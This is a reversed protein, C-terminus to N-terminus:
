LQALKTAYVCKFVTLVMWLGMTWQAATGCLAFGAGLFSGKACCLPCKSPVTFISSGISCVCRLPASAKVRM